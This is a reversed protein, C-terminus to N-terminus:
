SSEKENDRHQYLLNGQEKQPIGQQRGRNSCGLFSQTQMGCFYLIACSWAEVIRMAAYMEM